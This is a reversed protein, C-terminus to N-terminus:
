ALHFAVNAFPFSESDHRNGPLVTTAMVQVVSRRLKEAAGFVHFMYTILVHNFVTMARRGIVFVWYALSMRYTELLRRQRKWSREGFFGSLYASNTIHAAM